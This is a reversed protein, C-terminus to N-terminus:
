PLEKKRVGPSPLPMLNLFISDNPPAVRRLIGKMFRHPDKSESRESLIVSFYTNRIERSGNTARFSM